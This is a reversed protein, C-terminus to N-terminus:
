NEYAKMLCGIAADSAVGTLLLLLGPVMLGLWCCCCVQFAAAAAGAAAAAATVGGWPTQGQIQLDMGYPSPPPRSVPFRYCIHNSAKAPDCQKPQGFIM